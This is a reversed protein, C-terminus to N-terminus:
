VNIQAVIPINEIERRFVNIGHRVTANTQEATGTIVAIAIHKTLQKRVGFHKNIQNMKISNKIMQELKDIMLNNAIENCGIM